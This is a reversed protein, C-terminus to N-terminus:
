VIANQQYLKTLTTGPGHEVVDGDGIGARRMWACCARWQVPSALQRVLLERYETSPMPEGTVNSLVTASLPAFEVGALFTAFQQQADLMLSSHFAGGVKLRVVRGGLEAIRAALGQDAVAHPPGSVVCQTPANINAVELGPVVGEALLAQVDEVPVRAVAAMAGNAAAKMLRGRERVVRLGELFDYAGAAYLAAFEGLSHGALVSEGGVGGAGDARWTDFSLCEVVYLLPQTVDTSALLDAPGELCASRVSYGLLDSAAQVREPWRELDAAGMGVRQAGQGAFLHAVPRGGAPRSMEGSKTM